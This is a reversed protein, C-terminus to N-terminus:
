ECRGEKRGEKGSGIGRGGRGSEGDRKGGLMEGGYGTGKDGDGM